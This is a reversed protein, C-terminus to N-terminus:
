SWVATIHSGNSAAHRGTHNPPRTCAYGHAEALCADGERMWMPDPVWMLHRLGCDSM